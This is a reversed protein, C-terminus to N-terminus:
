NRSQDTPQDSVPSTSSFTSNELSDSPIVGVRPQPIDISIFDSPNSQNQYSTTIWERSRAINSIRVEDIIGDFPNTKIAENLQSGINLGGATNRAVTNNVKSGYDFGNVYLQIKEQDWTFVIYYWTRIDLDIASREYSYVGNEGTIGFTLRRRENGGLFQIFYADDSFDPKDGKYIVGAWDQFSNVYIWAEITGEEQLDLSRHDNIHVISGNVNKLGKFQKALGIKGSVQETGISNGSNKSGSADEVNNNLHWIGTYHTDWTFHTSLDERIQENGYYLSFKTDTFPSLEKLRAWVLLEGTDPNYHETQHDMVQGFEDVFVIDYGNIDEVMGNQARSRLAPERLHILIPFNPLVSNSKIKTNDIVIVKEWKFGDLDVVREERDAEDKKKQGYYIALVIAVALTGGITVYKLTTKLRNRNSPKPNLGSRLSM